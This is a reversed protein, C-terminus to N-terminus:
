RRGWYEVPEGASDQKEAARVLTRPAFKARIQRGDARMTRVSAPLRLGARANSDSSMSHKLASQEVRAGFIDPGQGVGNRVDLM